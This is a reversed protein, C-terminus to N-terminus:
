EKQAAFLAWPQGQPLPLAFEMRKGTSPHEFALRASQLAISGKCRSGYKGDGWLPHRRSAFQVRIQHTRGTHLLIDALSCEGATAAIRYELVAERVGKRPRKVPYVRGARSDKFLWDRLIGAAPLAPDAGGAIVARYGKFFCPQAASEQGADMAAYAAQTQAIQRSLAAAAAPTKALVMLGSVGTDLRHVVGIYAQPAAWRQRLADPLSGESSLGAPKDVVVLAEDEYLINLSM